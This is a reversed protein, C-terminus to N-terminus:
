KIKAGCRSCFISNESLASGCHTCYRPIFPAPKEKPAEPEEASEESPEAPSSVAEQYPIAEPQAPYPAIPEEYVVEPIDPTLKGSNIDDAYQHYGFAIKANIVAIALSIGFSVLLVASYPILASFNLYEQLQDLLDEQSALLLYACLGCAALCLYTIVVSLVSTVGYCKAGKNELKPQNFGLRISKVYQFQFIANILIVAMMVTISFMIGLLPPLIRSFDDTVALMCSTVAVIVDMLLIISSGVISAIMGVMAMIYKILFGVSPNSEPKENKSKFYIFLAVFAMAAPSLYASINPSFNTNFSVSPFGESSLEGSTAYDRIMEVLEPTIMKMVTFTLVLAGIISVVISVIHLIGVTLMLKNKFYNKTVAMNPYYPDHQPQYM